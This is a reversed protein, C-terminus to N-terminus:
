MLALHQTRDFHVFHLSVHSFSFKCYYAGKFLCARAYLCVFNVVPYM